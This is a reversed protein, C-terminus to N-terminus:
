ETEEKTPDILELNKALRKKRKEEEMLRLTKEYQEKYDIWFDPITPPIFNSM